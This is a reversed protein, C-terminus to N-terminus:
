ALAPKPLRFGSGGHKKKLAGSNRSDGSTGRALREAEGENAIGAQILIYQGRDAKELADWECQECIANIGIEEGRPVMKYVVWSVVKEVVKRM